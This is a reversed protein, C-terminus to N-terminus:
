RNAILVKKAGAPKAVNNRHPARPKSEHSHRWLRHRWENGLHGDESPSACLLINPAVEPAVRGCPLTSCCLPVSPILHLLGPAAGCSTVHDQAAEKGLQPTAGMRDRDARRFNFQLTQCQNAGVSQIQHRQAAVVPQTPCPERLHSRPISVDDLPLAEAVQLVDALAVQPSLSPWGHRARTCPLTPRRTHPRAQKGVRKYALCESSAQGSFFVIPTM